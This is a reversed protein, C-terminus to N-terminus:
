ITIADECSGVAVTAGRFRLAFRGLARCINFPEVVTSHDVSIVIIGNKGSPICKPKKTSGAVSELQSVLCQM